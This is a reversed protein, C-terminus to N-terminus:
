PPCVFGELGGYITEFRNLYDLPCVFCCASVSYDAELLMRSVIERIHASLGPHYKNNLRVDFYHHTTGSFVTKLQWSAYQILRM